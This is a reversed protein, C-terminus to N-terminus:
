FGHLYLSCCGRGLRKFDYVVQAAVTKSIYSLSQILDGIHHGHCFHQPHHIFWRWFIIAFFFSLLFLFIENLVSMDGIPLMVIYSLFSEMHIVVPLIIWLKCTDVFVLKVHELLHGPLSGSFRGRIQQWKNHICPLFAPRFKLLLSILVMMSTKFIPFLGRSRAFSSLTTFRIFIIFYLM